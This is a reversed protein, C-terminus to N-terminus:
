KAKEKIFDEIARQIHVSLMTKTRYHPALTFWDRAAADAIEKISM